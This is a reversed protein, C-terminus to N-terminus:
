RYGKSTYGELDSHPLENIKGFFREVLGRSQPRVPIPFVKWFKLESPCNNTKPSCFDIFEIEDALAGVIRIM